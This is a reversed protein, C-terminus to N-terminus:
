SGNIPQIFGVLRRHPNEAVAKALAEEAEKYSNFKQAHKPVVTRGPDGDIDALWFPPKDGNDFQIVYRCSVPLKVSHQSKNKAEVDAIIKHMPRAHSHRM